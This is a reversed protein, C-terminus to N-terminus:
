FICSNKGNIMIVLSPYFLNKLKPSSSQFELDALLEKLHLNPRFSSTNKKKKKKKSIVRRVQRSVSYHSRLSQHQAELPLASTCVFDTLSFHPSINGRFVWTHEIVYYYWAQRNTVTKKWSMYESKTASTLVRVGAVTVAGPSSM